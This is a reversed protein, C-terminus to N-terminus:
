RRRKRRKRSRSRKKSDQPSVSPSKAKKRNVGVRVQALDRPRYTFMAIVIQSQISQLLSQFMEFARVKYEALPDKQAYSQLGIGQRLLDISTLYEVWLSGTIELMLQRQVNFLVREGLYDLVAEADQSALDTVRVNVLEEFRAEGLLAKLGDRTEQDLEAVARAGIRQFELQGWANAWADIADQLHDLIAQELQDREWGAVQRAAWSSFQFREVRKSVRRHQKDYGSRAGFRLEHIMNLLSAETCDAPRRIQTRIDQDVEAAIRKTRDQLLNDVMDLVVFVLDQNSAETLLKPDVDLEGIQVRQAVQVLVRMRIQAQALIRVQDMLSRELQRGELDTLSRVDIDLGTQKSVARAASQADLVRGNEDFDIEIGEYAIAAADVVREIAAEGQELGRRVILEAMSRVNERECELAESVLIGLVQRVQEPEAGTPLASFVQKLTFSPFLEQAAIM